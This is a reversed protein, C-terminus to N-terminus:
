LVQFFKMMFINTPNIVKRNKLDWDALATLKLEGEFEPYKRRFEIICNRFNLALLPRLKNADTLDAIPSRGENEFMLKSTQAMREVHTNFEFVSYINVTRATTYAGRPYSSLMSKADQTGPLHDALKGDQIITRM